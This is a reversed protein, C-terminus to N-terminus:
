FRAAFSLGAAFGRIGSSESGSKLTGMQGRLFPRFSLGNELRHDYGLQLSGTAVAATALTADSGMGTQHRANLGLVLGSSPGLSLVGSVGADFYNARTGDVQVNDRQYPTRFRDIAYVSLERFGSSAIRLQWDATVVPGLHVTTGGSGEGSTTSRLTMLDQDFVDVSLGITMGNQGVLGDAGISARLVNGPQLTSLLSTEVALPAYARRVEYSSAVAWAWSGLQRALVVGATGSGGIGLVPTSFGLAPAGLVQIASLEQNSLSTRGTPLNAGLTILVNDGFFRGTARARVDALGSLSYESAGSAVTSDPAALTVAGRAYASSVDLTWQEGLPLRAQIPLSWQSASAIRVTGAQNSTPQPIGGGGFSWREFVPSAAAVGFGVLRAQALAGAATM